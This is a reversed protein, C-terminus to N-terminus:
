VGYMCKRCAHAQKVLKRVYKNLAPEDLVTPSLIVYPDNIHPYMELPSLHYLQAAHLAEEMVVEMSVGEAGRIVLVGNDYVCAISRSPTKCLEYEFKCTKTMISMEPAM